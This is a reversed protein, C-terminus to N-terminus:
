VVTIALNVAEVYMDQFFRVKLNLRLRTTKSFMSPCLRSFVQNQFVNGYTQKKEKTKSRLRREERGEVKEDKRRAM